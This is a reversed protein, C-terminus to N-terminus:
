AHKTGELAPKHNMLSSDPFPSVFSPLGCLLCMIKLVEQERPAPQLCSWVVTQLGKHSEQPIVRHLCMTELGKFVQVSESLQRPFEETPETTPVVILLLHVLLHLETGSAKLFSQCLAPKRRPSTYLQKDLVLCIPFARVWLLLLIEKHM